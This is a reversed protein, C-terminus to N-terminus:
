QSRHPQEYAEHMASQRVCHSADLDSLVSADLDSLVFAHIFEPDFGPRTCTEAM